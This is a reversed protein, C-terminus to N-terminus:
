ILDGFLEGQAKFRDLRQLANEAIVELVDYVLKKDGVPDDTAVHV